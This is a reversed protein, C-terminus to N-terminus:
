SEMSNSTTRRETGSAKDNANKRNLRALLILGMTCAGLSDILVDQVTGFRDPVFTQHWEDSAAFAICFLMSGVITWTTLTGRWWKLAAVSFWTLIAFETFHWGKVITFWAVGWFVAFREMSERGAGTLTAVLKFFENPRIVTCSTGFILALWVCFLFPFRGRTARGGAPLNPDDKRSQDIGISRSRIVRKDTQQFSSRQRSRPWVRLWGITALGM